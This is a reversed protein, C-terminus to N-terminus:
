GLHKMEILLLIANNSLAEMEVCATNWLALGDRGELLRNEVEFAGQVVFVVVGNQNSSLSHAAEERGDFKAISVQVCFAGAKEAPFVPVFRNKNKDIDFSFIGTPGEDESSCKIRLQLYNVLGTDFPNRVAFASGRQLFFSYAQGAHIFQSETTGVTAVIGGVLPLLLVLTAEETSFRATKLGALTEDNLAHLPGFPQKHEHRYQGFNFTHYSRFSATETHGREAAPFIKAASTRIM